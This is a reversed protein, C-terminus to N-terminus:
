ERWDELGRFGTTEDNWILTVTGTRGNRHKPIIIEAADGRETLADYEKERYLLMVVDADQELNGSERLDSMIPRKNPRQMVARSLQSLALVAVNHERAIAKLGRSIEGLEDNRTNGDATVLQIHDVVVLDLTGGAALRRVRSRIQALSLTASEDLVIKTEALRALATGLARDQSPSFRAADLTALPVGSTMSVARALIQPVGMELSFIAAGVGYALASRLVLALALSSKGMGPRGALILLDGRGLGGSLQQDLDVFCTPLKTATPAARRDLDALGAMQDLYRRLGEDIPIWETSPASSAVDALMQESRALLTETEVARDFAQTAIRGGASIMRRRLADGAVIRAYHEAHIPTPVAGLLDALYGTGGVAELQGIRDLHDIITLYDLEVSRDVLERMAQYITGNRERYFDRPELIPAVRALVERDLLVSGLVAEEAEQNNPPVARRDGGDFLPRPSATM